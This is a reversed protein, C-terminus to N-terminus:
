CMLVLLAAATRVALRSSPRRTSSSSTPPSAAAGATSSARGGARTTRTCSRSSTTARSRYNRLTRVLHVHTHTPLHSYGGDIGHTDRAGGDHDAATTGQSLSLSSSEIRSFYRLTDRISPFIESLSSDLYTRITTGYHEYLSQHPPQYLPAALPAAELAVMPALM